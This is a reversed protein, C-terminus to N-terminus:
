DLIMGFVEHSIWGLLLLSHITLSRLRLQVRQLQPALWLYLRRGLYAQWTADKYTYTYAQLESGFSKKFNAIKPINAGLMDYQTLGSRAGWEILTWHILNNPRLSYYARFAVGDWYYIKDHFHLFIAGAIVQGQHKALLVKIREYPKLIDWVTAYDQRSLPPLRNSKHYTDKVMEYYVDLFSTDTAEVIEVNCKQAKRIATRCESKLSRWLEQPPRNLALVYTQPEQVIDHRDTLLTPALAELSRFEIYDAKFCKVLNDLQELVARYYTRSVLPGGYGVGGLPSALITLPGRRQRFLPFIGILNSGEFIGFPLKEAGRLKEIVQMWAFTHFITGIEFSAVMEDWTQEDCNELLEL